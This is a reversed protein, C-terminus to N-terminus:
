AFSDNINDLTNFKVALIARQEQLIRLAERRHRLLDELITRVDPYDCTELFATYEKIAERERHEATELASCLGKCSHVCTSKM